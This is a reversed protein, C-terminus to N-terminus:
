DRSCHQIIFRIAEVKIELELIDGAGNSLFLKSLHRLYQKNVEIKKFTEVLM